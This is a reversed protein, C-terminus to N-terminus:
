WAKAMRTKTELEKAPQGEAELTKLDQAVVVRNHGEKKARYLAADAAQIIEEWDEGHETFAAMGLSVTVLALTQGRYEM